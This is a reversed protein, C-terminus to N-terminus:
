FQFALTGAYAYGAIVAGTIAFGIYLAFARPKVLAWVAVMAPFGTASTALMFALGTAPSMGLGILGSVFPIAAFANLYIPIGIAVALPVALPGAGSGLWTGVAGVPLWAIMLSEIAYAVALWRVLFWGTTTATTLFKQSRAADNWFKWAIPTGTPSPKPGCCAEEGVVVTQATSGCCSKPAVAITVATKPGCCSTATNSAIRLAAPADLWGVRILFMTGFGSLIGMGVASIMKAVAFGTGLTGAAIFFQTPDMLPSSIWFAMVPALPVGTGLLGAVLPIVGCSCFPLLAGILSAIVIMRSQRGRFARAALADAGTAKAAAAVLVSGALWPGIHALEAAVYRLTTVAQDPSYLYLGVVLLVLGGLVFDLHRLLAASQRLAGAPRRRVPRSANTITTMEAM